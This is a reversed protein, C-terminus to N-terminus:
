NWESINQLKQHVFRAKKESDTGLQIKFVTNHIFYKELNLKKIKKIASAHFYFHNCINIKPRIIENFESKLKINQPYKLPNERYDWTMIFVSLRM